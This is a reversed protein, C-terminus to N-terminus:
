NIAIRQYASTIKAILESDIEDKRQVLASKIKDFTETPIFLWNTHLKELLVSLEKLHTDSLLDDM